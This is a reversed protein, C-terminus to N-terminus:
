GEGKTLTALTARAAMLESLATMEDTVDYEGQAEIRNVLECLAPAANNTAEVVARMADREAEAQEARALLTSLEHHVAIAADGNLTDLIKLTGDGRKQSVVLASQSAGIGLDFGIITRETM